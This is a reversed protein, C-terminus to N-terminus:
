VLLARHALPEQFVSLAQQERQVMWAQLVQLAQRVPQETSGPLVRLEPQALALLVPQVLYVPRELQEQQVTAAQPM